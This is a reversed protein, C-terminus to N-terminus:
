KLWCEGLTEQQTLERDEDKKDKNQLVKEQIGGLM